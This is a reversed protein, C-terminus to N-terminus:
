KFKYKHNDCIVVELPPDPKVDWNVFAGCDKCFNGKRLRPLWVAEETGSAHTCESRLEAIRERIKESQASLALYEERIANM